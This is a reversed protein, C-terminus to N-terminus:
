RFSIRRYIETYTSQFITFDIEMNWNWGFVIHSRKTVLCFHIDFKFDINKFRQGSNQLCFFPPYMNGCLGIIESNRNNYIIKEYLLYYMHQIKCKNQM